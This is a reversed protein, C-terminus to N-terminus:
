NAKFTEIFTKRSMKAKNVCIDLIARENSRIRYINDKLNHSLRDIFLPLLKIEMLDAVARNMNREYGKVDDKAICAMARNFAREIKVFRKEAEEPDPGTDEVAADDDDNAQAAAPM